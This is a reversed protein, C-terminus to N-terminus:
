GCRTPGRQVLPLGAHSSPERARRHARRAMAVTLHPVVDTFSGGYPPYEPWAAAFAETLAGFPEAPEPALYLVGDPFSGSTVCRSPSRRRLRRAGRAIAGYCRTTSAADPPSSRSCCRSTRAPRRRPAVPDVRSGTSASWRSPRPCPVVLLATEAVGIVAQRM